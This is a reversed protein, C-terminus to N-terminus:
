EIVVKTNNLNQGACTGSLVYVGAPIGRTPISILTRGARITGDAVTAVLRGSIDRLEIHGTADHAMTTEVMLMDSVPNPYATLAYMSAAQDRIGTAEVVTLAVTLDSIFVHTGHYDFGRFVDLYPRSSIDATGPTWDFTATAQGSASVTTALSPNVTREFTAGQVSMNMLDSAPITATMILHFPMNAPLIYEYFGNTNRNLAPTGAFAMRWGYTSDYITLIQMDRRIEGIQVGGRYERVIVTANWNGVTNPMWDIEGTYADLTFPGSPDASPPLYGACVSSQAVWPTDLAWTISDGDADYPLPNYVWPQMLPALTVPKNLMVPTSNIMSTGATVITYLYMADSSPSSLNSIAANRCCQSYSVRYQGDHPWTITDVYSYEEVGNYLYTAPSVNVMKSAFNMGSPMSDYLLQDTLGIPIGLTDRYVTLTIEYTLGSLQRATIQGGMLHSAHAYPLASVLLIFFLLNKKM